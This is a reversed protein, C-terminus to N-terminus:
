HGSAHHPHPLSGELSRWLGELWAMESPTVVQDGSSRRARWRTVSDAVADFMATVAADTASDPELHVRFQALFYELAGTGLALARGSADPIEAPPTLGARLFPLTWNEAAFMGAPNPQPAWVHLVAVRDSDEGGSGAHSNALSEEDLDGAHAHWLRGSVPVDPPSEGAGLLIAYAVGVLQERGGITAFELVEPESPDVRGNNLLGPHVWHQGMAPVEPGVARYGAASAARPDPFRRAALEAQAVFARAAPESQAGVQPTWWVGIGALILLTQIRM